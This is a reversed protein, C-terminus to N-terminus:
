SNLLNPAIRGNIVIGKLQETKMENAPQERTDAWSRAHASTGRM